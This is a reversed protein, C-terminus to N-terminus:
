RRRRRAVALAGLALVGGAAPTPVPDLRFSSTMTMADGASLTFQNVIAISTNAGPQGTPFLFFQTPLTNSASPIPPTNLTFPDNYLTQYLGGDIFAGYLATGPVTTLTASGNNNADLLTGSITGFTSSPFPVVPSIPLVVTVNYTQTVATNNTLTFTNNVFPDADLILGFNIGFSASNVTGGISWQNPNATDQTWTGPSGANQWNWASGGVTNITLNMGTPPNSPQAIAVGSFTALAAAALVFVRSSRM